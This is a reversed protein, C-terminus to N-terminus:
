NPASVTESMARSLPSMRSTGAMIEGALRLATEPKLGSQVVESILLGLAFALMRCTDQPTLDEREAVGFVYGRLRVCADPSWEHPFHLQPVTLHPFNDSGIAADSARAIRAMDPVSDTSAGAAVAYGSVVSWISWRDDAENRFLLGDAPGGPMFMDNDPLKIGTARLAFEGNLAALAGIVTEGHMGRQDTYVETVHRRIEDGLKALRPESAISTTETNEERTVVPRVVVPPSAVKGAQNRKGFVAAKMGRGM